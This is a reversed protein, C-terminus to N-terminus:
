ISHKIAHRNVEYTTPIMHSPFQPVGGGPFASVRSPFPTARFQTHLNNFVCTSLECNVTLLLRRLKECLRLTAFTQLSSPCCASMSPPLPM